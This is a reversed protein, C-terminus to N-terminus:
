TKLNTNLGVDYNSARPLHIEVNEECIHLFVVLVCLSGFDVDQLPTGALIYTDGSDFEAVALNQPPDCGLAQLGHFLHSLCDVPVRDLMDHRFFGSSGIVYTVQRKRRLRPEVDPMQGVAVTTMMAVVM